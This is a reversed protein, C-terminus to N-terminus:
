RVFVGDVIVGNVSAGMKAKNGAGPSVYQAAGPAPTPSVAVATGSTAAQCIAAAIAEPVVLVTGIGTASAVVNAVTNATPLFGCVTAADAQITAMVTPDLTGGSCAGALSLAIISFIRKM